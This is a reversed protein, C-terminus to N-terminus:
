IRLELELLCCVVSVLGHLGEGGEEGEDAEEGDGGAGGDGLIVGYAGEGMDRGRGWKGAV